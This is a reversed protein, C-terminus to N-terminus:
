IMNGSEFLVDGAAKIKNFCHAHTLIPKLVNTVVNKTDSFFYSQRM